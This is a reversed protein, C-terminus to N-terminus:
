HNPPYGIICGLTLHKKKTIQWQARSGLHDNLHELARSHPHSQEPGRHALARALRKIAVEHLVHHNQQIFCSVRQYVFM